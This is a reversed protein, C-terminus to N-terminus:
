KEIYLSILELKSNKNFTFDLTKNKYNYICEKKGLNNILEKTAKGYLNKINKYSEGKKIGQKYAYNFIDIQSITSTGDIIDVKTYVNILPNNMPYGHNYYKYKNDESYGVFGYNNDETATGDGLIKLVNGCPKGLEIKVNNYTISFDKDTLIYSSKYFGSFLLCFVIWIGILVFQKKKM